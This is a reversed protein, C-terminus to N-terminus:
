EALDLEERVATWSKGKGADIEKIARLLKAYAAEDAVIEL